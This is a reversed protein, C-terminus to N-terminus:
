VCPRPKSVVHWWLLWRGIHLGPKPSTGARLNSGALEMKFHFTLSLFTFTRWEAQGPNPQLSLTLSFCHTWFQALWLINMGASCAWGMVFHQVKRVWMQFYLTFYGGCSLYKFFRPLYTTPGLSEYHLCSTMLTECFCRWVLKLRDECHLLLNMPFLCPTLKSSNFASLSIYCLKRIKYICKSWPKSLETPSWTLARFHVFEKYQYM